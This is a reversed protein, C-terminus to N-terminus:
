LVDTNFYPFYRLTYKLDKNRIGIKKAPVGAVIDYPAPNKTVVAGAGVVCGKPLHIGPLIVARIGIWVYDDIITPKSILDFTPSNPNHDLSLVHVCPSISVNNGITVGVRGDLYCGRNIVTNSGIKVLHGSFFCGMHVSSEKGLQIKLINRLYLHRLKYSPFHTVFGNYLYYAVAVVFSKSGM